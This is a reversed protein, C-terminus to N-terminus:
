LPGARATTTLTPHAFPPLHLQLTVTITVATPTAHCSTVHVKHLTAIRDAIQCPAAGAPDPATDNDGTPPTAASQTTATLAQAASLATLDAAASLKHRATSISSWLTAVTLATLLLLAALLSLVTASGRENPSMPHRFACNTM